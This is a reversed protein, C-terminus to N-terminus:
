PNMSFNCVIGGGNALSVACGVYRYATPSGTIIQWHGGRYPAEASVWGYYADACNTKSCYLVQAIDTGAGSLIHCSSDCCGSGANYDVAPQAQDALRQSFTLSGAGPNYQGRAQNFLSICAGQDVYSPQPAPVPAPCDECWIKNGCNDTISTGCQDKSCKTTSVCLCDSCKLPNGCNDTISTGCQSE